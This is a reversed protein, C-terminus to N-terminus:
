EFESSSLSNLILFFSLISFFTFLHHMLFIEHHGTATERTKEDKFKKHHQSCTHIPLPFKSSHPTIEPCILLSPPPIHGRWQCSWVKLHTKYSSSPTWIRCISLRQIWIRYLNKLSLTIDRQWSPHLIPMLDCWDCWDCYHFDCWFVDVVDHTAAINLSLKEIVFIESVATTEWM